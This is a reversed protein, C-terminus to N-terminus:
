KSPAPPTSKKHHKGMHGHPKATEPPNPIPQMTVPPTAQALAGGGSAALATALLATAAIALASLKM